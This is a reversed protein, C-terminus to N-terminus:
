KPLVAAKRPSAERAAPPRPRTQSSNGSVRGPASQAAATPRALGFSDRVARLRAVLRPLPEAAEMLDRYVALYDQAMRRATFRHEFRERVKQRSLQAVRDVASAASAEDEVIFGTLGEEIVEPV